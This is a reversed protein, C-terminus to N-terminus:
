FGGLISEGKRRKPYIIDIMKLTKLELEDESLIQDRIEQPVLISIRYKGKENLKEAFYDILEGKVKFRQLSDIPISVHNLHNYIQKEHWKSDRNKIYKDILINFENANILEYLEHRVGYPSIRGMNKLLRRNGLPKPPGRYYITRFLGMKDFISDIVWKRTYEPYISILGNLPTNSDIYEIAEEKTKPWHTPYIEPELLTM